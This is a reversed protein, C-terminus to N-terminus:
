PPHHHHPPPLMSGGTPRWSVLCSGLVGLLHGPDARRLHDSSRAACRPGCHLAAYYHCRWTLLASDASSDREGQWGPQSPSAVAMSLQPPSGLWWALRGGLKGSQRAEPLGGSMRVSLGAPFLFPLHGCRMWSACRAASSSPWTLQPCPCRQSQCDSCSLAQAAAAELSVLERAVLLQPLTLSILTVSVAVGLQSETGSAAAAVLHFDSEWDSEM